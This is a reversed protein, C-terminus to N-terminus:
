PRIERWKERWAALAKAREEEQRAAGKGLWFGRDPVPDVGTAAALSDIVEDLLEPEVALPLDFLREVVERDAIEGGAVAERLAWVLRLAAGRAPRPTEDGKGGLVIEMGEGLATAAAKGRRVSVEGALVSIITQGDRIELAYSGRGLVSTEAIAFPAAPAGRVWIRGELLTAGGAALSLVSRPALFVEAGAPDRLVAARDGPTFIETADALIQGPVAENKGPTGAEVWIASGPGSAVSWGSRKPEEPLPISLVAILLAAALLLPALWGRRTAPEPERRRVPTRTAAGAAAGPARALVAAVIADDSSGLPALLERLARDIRGASALEDALAPDVAIEAELALKAGGSLEGDLLAHLRALRDDDIM